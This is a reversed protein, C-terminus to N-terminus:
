YLSFKELIEPDHSNNLDGWTKYKSFFEDIGELFIQDFYFTFINQLMTFGTADVAIDDGNMALVHHEKIGYEPKGSNEVEWVIRSLLNSCRNMTNTAACMSRVSVMTAAALLKEESVKKKKNFFM